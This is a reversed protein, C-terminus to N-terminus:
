LRLRYVDNAWNGTFPRRRLDVAGLLCGGQGVVLADRLRSARVAGFEGRLPRSLNTRTAQLAPALAFAVTTVAALLVYAFVRHDVTLDTILSHVVFQGAQPITAFVVRLALDIAGNAIVIGSLGALMALLFGETLLQRVVRGRSAGLAM